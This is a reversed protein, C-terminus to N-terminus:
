KYEELEKRIHSDMLCANAFWRIKESIDTLEESTYGWTEELEYLIRELETMKMKNMKM